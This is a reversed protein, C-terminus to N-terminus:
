RPAVQVNIVANADPDFTCAYEMNKWAGFGNQFKVKDGHFRLAGRPRDAWGFRPFKSELAGDTWEAQYEAASEVAKRCALTADLEHRGAWCRLSKKCESDSLRPMSPSRTSDSLNAIYVILFVAFFIAAVVACGSTKAPPPKPPRGPAGCGPCAPATESIQRGCEKCPILAM